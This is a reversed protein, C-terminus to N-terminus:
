RHVHIDLIEGIFVWHPQWDGNADPPYAGPNARYYEQVDQALSDKSFQHQYLKRCLFTLSAEEYAVSDKMQIPTLGAAATKNEYRGSHSGMYALANRYKTPFFSVTFNEQEMLFQCTYRTPHIYVTVTSGNRGTSGWISGMSGWSVTCGNFQEITGATVLAWQNQFLDFIPYAQKEFPNM